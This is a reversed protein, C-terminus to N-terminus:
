GSFGPLYWHNIFLTQQLWTQAFLLLLVFILFDRDQEQSKRLGLGAILAIFPTFILWVRETEMFFINSFASIIMIIVTSLAFNFAWAYETRKRILFSLGKLLLYSIPLGTTFFYALINGTSCLIYQPLPPWKFSIGTKNLAIASVLCEVINFGTFLFILGFILSPAALFWLTYKLVQKTSIMRRLTSIILAIFLTGVVPLSIFGLTTFIGFVIGSLFLYSPKENIIGKYFLWTTLISLLMFLPFVSISAFIIVGPLFAFLLLSSISSRKLDITRNLFYIFPLSFTSFFLLIHQILGRYFYKEELWFVALLGPPYHAHRWFLTPMSKVYDQFVSKFNAFKDLDLYLNPYNGPDLLGRKYSFLIVSIAHIIILLYLFVEREELYRFPERYRNLYFLFPLFLLILGLDYINIEIRKTSVPRGYIPSYFNHYVSRFIGLHNQSIAVGYTHLFFQNWFILLLLFIYISLFLLEFNASTFGLPASDWNFNGEGGAKTPPKGLKYKLYIKVIIGMSILVLGCVAYGRIVASSYSDSLFLWTFIFILVLHIIRLSNELSSKFLSNKQFIDLVM